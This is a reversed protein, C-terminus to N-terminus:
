SIKKESLLIYPKEFETKQTKVDTIFYPSIYGRDFRMGETVEIEDEITKGEKVTIVGEKGVKEMAQAILGGVHTDGNASITAVQAIEATTTVPRAQASLVSVVRDVAAQAGRRLDMPNCGAAVNKVGETYIARALVTATTTGDGAIENTKQAVDQVLSRPTLSHWTLSLM